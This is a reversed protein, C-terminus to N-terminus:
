ELMTFLIVDGPEIIVAKIRAEEESSKTRIFRSSQVIQNMKFIRVQIGDLDKLDIKLQQLILGFTPKDTCDPSSSVALIGASTYIKGRVEIFCKKM